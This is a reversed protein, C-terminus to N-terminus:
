LARMIWNFGTISQVVSPNNELYLSAEVLKNEVAQMSDFVVNPFFKERMEDWIHEIPNLEPCYAPLLKTKINDPISLGTTSHCPAGDYFMLIYENRHRKAVEALFINMVETTMTPLILFDAAGDLPSVAGYVYTYERILQQAVESRIGSPAWCRKPENIRGFRAKDEFM